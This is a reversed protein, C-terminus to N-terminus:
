AKQRRRARLPPAPAECPALLVAAYGPMLWRDPRLPPTGSGGYKVDESSWEIAWERGRQPAVLPEARAAIDADPGLNLVLLRDTAGPEFFRLVLLDSSLTAGDIHARESRLLDRRLGLLDKHL